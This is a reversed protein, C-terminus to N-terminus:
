RRPGGGRVGSVDQQANENKKRRSRPWWPPSSRCRPPRPRGRRPGPPLAARRRGAQRGARVGALVASPGRVAGRRLLRNRAAEAQVHPASAWHNVTVPGRCRAPRPVPWSRRSPPSKWASDFIYVVEYRRTVVPVERKPRHPGALHPCSCTTHQNWLYRSLHPTLLSLSLHSALPRSAHPAGRV